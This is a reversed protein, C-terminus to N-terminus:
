YFVVVVLNFKSQRKKVNTMESKQIMPTTKSTKVEIM